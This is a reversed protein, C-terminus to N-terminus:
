TRCMNHSGGQVAAKLRLNLQEFGRLDHRVHESVDHDAVGEAILWTLAGDQEALTRKSHCLESGDEHRHNVMLCDTERAISCHIHPRPSTMISTNTLCIKQPQFQEPEEKTFLLRFLFELTKTNCALNRVQCIQRVRNSEVAMTALHRLYLLAKPSAKNSLM